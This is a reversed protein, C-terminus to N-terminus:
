CAISHTLPFLFTKLGKFLGHIFKDCADALSIASMISLHGDPASLYSSLLLHTYRGPSEIDLITKTILDDGDGKVALNYGISQLSKKLVILDIAM